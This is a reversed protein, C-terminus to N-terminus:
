SLNNKIQEMITPAPPGAVERMLRTAAGHYIHKSLVFKYANEFMKMAEDVAVEQIDDTMKEAGYKGIDWGYKGGLAVATASVSSLFPIPVDIPLSPLLYAGLGSLATAVATEVVAQNREEKKVGRRVLNQSGFYSLAGLGAAITPGFYIPAFSGAITGIAAGIYTYANPGFRLPSNVQLQNAEKRTAELYLALKKLEVDVKAFLENKVSTSVQQEEGIWKSAGESIEQLKKRHDGLLAEHKRYATQLAKELRDRNAPLHLMKKKETAVIIERILDNEEQPLSELLTDIQHTGKRLTFGPLFTSGKHYAALKAGETALQKIAELRQMETGIDVVLPTINAIYNELDPIVLKENDLPKLEEVIQSLQPHFSRLFVDNELNKPQLSERIKAHFDNLFQVTKRAIVAKKEDQQLTLIQTMLTKAQSYIPNLTRQLANKGPTDLNGKLLLDLEKDSFEKMIKAFATIEPQMSDTLGASLKAEMRSCLDSLQYLAVDVEKKLNTFTSMENKATIDPRPGHLFKTLVPRVLQKLERKATSEMLAYKTKYDDNLDQDEKPQEGSFPKSAAEVLSSLLQEATEPNNLHAFLQNFGLEIGAQIGDQVRKDVFNPSVGIEECKKKLQLNDNEFPELHLATLLQKVVAPLNEAGPIAIPTQSTTKPGSSPPMTGLKIFQARFFETMALKFPVYEHSTKEETEEIGTKLVSPLIFSKVLYRIVRNAIYEVKFFKPIKPLIQIKPKHKDILVKSFDDCLNVMNNNYFEQNARKRYGDLGGKVHVTANAYQRTTSNYSELFDRAQFLSKKIFNGRKEAKPSTLESRIDNVITKVYAQISNSLLSTKFFLIYMLGAKFQQWTTLPYKKNFLQWVTEDKTISAEHALQLLNAASGEKIGAWERMLYVAAFHTLHKCLQDLHGDTQTKLKKMEASEELPAPQPNQIPAPSVINLNKSNELANGALEKITDLQASSDVPAGGRCWVEWSGVVYPKNWYERVKQQASYLYKTANASIIAM